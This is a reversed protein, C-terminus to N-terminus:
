EPKPSSRRQMIESIVDHVMLNQLLEIVRPFDEDSCGSALDIVLHKYEPIRQFRLLEIGAFLANRSNGIGLYASTLLSYLRSLYALGKQMHPKYRSNDLSRKFEDSSINLKAIAQKLFNRQVPSNAGHLKSMEYYFAGLTLTAHAYDLDGPDRRIGELIAVGREMSKLANYYQGSLFHNVGESIMFNAESRNFSQYPDTGYVAPAKPNHLISAYETKADISSGQLVLSMAAFGTTVIERLNGM